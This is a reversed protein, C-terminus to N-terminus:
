TKIEAKFDDYLLDQGKWYVDLHKEFSRVDKSNVASAPLDNWNKTVRNTFSYKKIDKNADKVFLKKNHGRLETTCYELISPLSKDYDHHDTTLKFTEIMDGRARRYALTPLKLKQLREPYSLTSLGPVLKTARRQVNEIAEKQYIRHPYWVPAAYELHPRVLGKFILCFIESAMHYFIKRAVALVKNAKNIATNIHIDFNLNDDIYVGLDKECSSNSLIHDGMNFVHPQQNNLKRKICMSVCKEPHFKLQWINSWEVLKDIDDQLKAADDPCRIHRFVKTDDAFLYLFSDRDIVDPMDNIYIVFLLPGLVSGQPIGSTVPAKSSTANNIVVCHTRDKLFFEIWGHHDGVIGYTGIKYLLKQHAVKAFAKMFDCYITEITGGEDLIESWITLVNLLQLTTSRGSIFGFQKDSFMKNIKMHEIIHDRIIGEM